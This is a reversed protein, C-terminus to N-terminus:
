FHKNLDYGGNSQVTGSIKCIISLYRSSIFNQNNKHIEFTKFTRKSIKASIVYHKAIQKRQFKRTKEEEFLKEIKIKNFSKEKNRSENKKRKKKKENNM